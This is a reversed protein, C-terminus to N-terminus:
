SLAVDALDDIWWAHRYIGGVRCKVLNGKRIIAATNKPDTKPLVFSGAGLDDLVIQFSRRAANEITALMTSPSAGDYVDLEIPVGAAPTAGVIQLFLQNSERVAM